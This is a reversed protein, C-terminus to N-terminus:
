KGFKLIKVDRTQLNIIPVRSPQPHHGVKEQFTTKSQWCSGCIMTINRYNSVSSYHIHGTMFFDPIKTIVLPDTKIDPIYLTSKHTPALHRKQLLFKMMLDAREYGGNNRISEVNAMYYDFSYGHYMLIDFGPFGKKAGINVLAPNSVLITNPLEWIPAAFDKYLVPQPEAIRMADHNGPCIILKINQPIQKLLEACGKYQEYIDKTVLEKDQNPYIGVGDVLDGIIFIYKVKKAIIKQNENGTKGNIWKLFKNFDDSLFYSSGFHLDSLCIAYDESPSKKMEKNVPVDPYIINNAFVINGGSVGVVGIVEDLVIDKAINILDAKNKNILISISGTQDELKLIINNNKTVKKDDVLGILSVTEREKKNLIRNISMINQLEQRNKLMGEIAKYRSNFFSVFDQIERKKSEEKYSFLVKVDSEEKDERANLYDIFKLYIKNDRGKEYLVKSREFELWNIDPINKNLLVDHIDKNLLLFEDSTIKNSILNNLKEINYEVNIKNILDPSIFINNKLFFSVVEKQKSVLEKM